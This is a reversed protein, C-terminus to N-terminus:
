KWEIVPYKEWGKLNYHWWEHPISEFGHSEMLQKLFARNALAEPAAATFDHRAKQLHQQFEAFDGKAVQKQFREEYADIETPYLLNRGNMDTLCVDVATGHCHNSTRYDAKFFGKIPVIEVMKQHALPPRYADCIRMKLHKEELVPVISLLAKAVDKHVYAYNGFHVDEDAYTAKGVMNNERAYMMDTIFLPHEFLVLDDAM